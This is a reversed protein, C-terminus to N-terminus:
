GVDLPRPPRPICPQAHHKAGVTPRAVVSRRLGLGPRLPRDAVRREFDESPAAQGRDESVRARGLDREEAPQGVVQAEHEGEVLARHDPERGAPRDPAALRRERQQVRRRPEPVRDGRERGGPHVPRRDDGDDTLLVPPVQRELREEGPPEGAEAALVRHADVLGGPRLVHRRRELARNVGGRREAAGREHDDRHVVPAGRRVVLALGGRGM